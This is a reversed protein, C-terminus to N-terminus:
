EESVSSEYAFDVSSEVAGCSAVNNVSLTNGSEDVKLVYVVVDCNSTMWTNGAAIEYHCPYEEGAQREGLDDGTRSTAFYRLVHHYYGDVSSGGEYNLGDEILACCVRYQGSEAFRIKADIRITNREVNSAIAIGCEAPKELEANLAARLNAIMQNEIEVYDFVAQPLSIIQFDTSLREGETVAFSDTVHIAMQTMREPVEEELQELASTMQPCFGCWTATFKQVLVRRYFPEAQQTQDFTGVVTVTVKASERDGLRAVLRYCGSEEAVFPSEIVQESDAVVVQASATVDTDGDYVTFTVEDGVYVVQESVELKLKSTTGAAGGGNEEKECGTMCLSLLAAWVTCVLYGVSKKM